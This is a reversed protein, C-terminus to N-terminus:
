TMPWASRAPARLGTLHRDAADVVTMSEAQTAVAGLDDTAVLTFTSTGSTTPIGTIEGTAPDISLGDPLSGGTVSWLYPATGGSTIPTADYSVGVEGDGLATSAIAPSAAVSVSEPQTATGGMADTAVVTFTSTGSTTPTGAIEGTNPNISLGDPLSGGTVSWTYPATGGSVLPVVDYVVGVEGASLAPSVVTPASSVSVSEPQTATGNVADTAVLSFVSTGAATPTGAIVGTTPDITLGSPLSGGTVSWTYPTSGGAATPVAQYHVGAEAAGLAPSTISPATPTVPNSPASAPGTGNSNVARVEFTYATGNTLGTM